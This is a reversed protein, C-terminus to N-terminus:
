DYTKICDARVTDDLLNRLQFVLERDPPHVEGDEDELKASGVVWDAARIIEPLARMVAVPDYEYPLKEAATGAAAIFRADDGADAPNPKPDLAAVSDGEGDWVQAQHCGEPKGVQPSWRWPGPTPQGAPDSEQQNSDWVPNEGRFELRAPSNKSPAPKIFRSVIEKARMYTEMRESRLPSQGADGERRRRETEFHENLREAIRELTENIAKQTEPEQKRKSM